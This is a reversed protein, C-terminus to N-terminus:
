RFKMLIKLHPLSDSEYLNKILCNAVKTLEVVEPIGIKIEM